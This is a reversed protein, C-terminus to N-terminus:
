VLTTKVDEKPRFRARDACVEALQESKGGDADLLESVDPIIPAGEGVVTLLRKQLQSEMERGDTFHGNECFYSIVLVGEYTEGLFHHIKLAWAGLKERPSLMEQWNKKARCGACSVLITQALERTTQNRREIGSDPHAEQGAM